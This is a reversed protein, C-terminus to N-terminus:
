TVVGCGPWVGLLSHILSNGDPWYVFLHIDRTRMDRQWSNLPLFFITIEIQLEDVMWGDGYHPLQLLLLLAFRGCAVALTEQVM